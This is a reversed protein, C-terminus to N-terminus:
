VSHKMYLASYLFVVASHESCVYRFPNLSVSLSSSISLFLSLASSASCHKYLDKELYQCVFKDFISVKSQLLCRPFLFIACCRGSGLKPKKYVTVCACM